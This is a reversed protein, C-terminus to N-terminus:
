EEGNGYSPIKMFTKYISDYVTYGKLVTKKWEAYHRQSGDLNNINISHENKNILLIGNHWHIM